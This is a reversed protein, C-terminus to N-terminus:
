IRAGAKASESNIVITGTAQAAVMTLWGVFCRKCLSPQLLFEKLPVFEKMEEIVQLHLLHFEEAIAHEDTTKVSETRCAKFAKFSDDARDQTLVLPINSIMGAVM